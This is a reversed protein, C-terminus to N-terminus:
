SVEDYVVAQCRQPLFLHLRQRQEDFAFTKAGADSRIEEAICLQQLDVVQLVGPAGVAVYLRKRRSNLWIVDPEGAIAVSAMATGDARDLVVLDGSDCAVYLRGTAADLALGHPGMAAVPASATLAGTNTAVAVVVAPERINVWFQKGLRDYVCWRPRGPLQTTALIKGVVPDVIRAQNEAVDAVLLHRHDPDWALGNPRTGVTLTRVLDGSAAELVLIAGTGRAAAVMWDVESAYLVGSAEPCGPVTREHHGQEGDLIEVQGFATHAVFVHGTAPHVDAHDFNGAQRPPIEITQRLQLSM